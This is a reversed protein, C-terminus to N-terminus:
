PHQLLNGYVDKANVEQVTYEGPLLGTIIWQWTGDDRMDDDNLERQAKYGNPGTIIFQISHPKVSNAVFEKILTLKGLSDEDYTNVLQGNVLKAFSVVGWSVPVPMEGLDNYYDPLTNELLIYDHGSPINTFTVVGNEDSTAIYDLQTGTSTESASPEHSLRFTIDSLKEGNQNVKTFTLTGYLGKVTPVPFNVTEYDDTSTPWNGNEDTTAYRLTAQANAPTADGTYNVDLNDLRVRYQHSYGRVGTDTSDDWDTLAPDPNSTLLNWVFAPANGNPYDDASVNTVISNRGHTDVSGDYVIYDGMWDEVKWAKAAVQIQTLVNSFTDFLGASSADTAKYAATSFSTLWQGVTTNKNTSWNPNQGSWNDFPTLDWVAKDDSKGFCISYLKSTAKIDDAIDAVDDIDSKQTSTGSTSNDGSVSTTSNSNANATGYTPQGDTLLITYRYDVDDITSSGLLNRALVLGSETSTGGAGEGNGIQLNNIANQAAAMGDATNVDVWTLRTKANTGYSVIAVWRKDGTQAGTETVIENLFDLAAVKTAQLRSEYGCAGDTTVTVATHESKRKGCHRCKNNQNGHGGPGGQNSQEYTQGSTGNCYYTTTSTGRHDRDSSEKGCHVCYDMSNSVDFVLLVATDPTDSALDKLNQSTQVQLSVIFENETDTQAITKSIKVVSGNDGLSTGNVQQGNADYLVSGGAYVVQTQGEAYSTAFLSMVMMLMMLVVVIRKM